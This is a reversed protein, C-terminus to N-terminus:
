LLAVERLLEADLIKIRHRDFRIAEREELARLARSITEPTTALYSAILTRTVTPSALAPNEVQQLLFRALRGTVSRLALDEVQALLERVRGALGDLIAPALTHDAELAMRLTTTPIVWAVVASLSAASAPNPGGDLAAIDNFTDGPAFLRLVYEEGSASLKYAKVHGSEVIWLGASPEGEAFIIEGASFSRRVARQALESRHRESLRVFYPVKGLFTSIM